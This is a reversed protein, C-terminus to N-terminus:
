FGPEFYDDTGDEHLRNCKGWTYSCGGYPFETMEMEQLPKGPPYINGTM